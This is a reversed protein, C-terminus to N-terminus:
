NITTFTLFFDRRAQENYVYQDIFRKEFNNALDDKKITTYEEFKSRSVSIQNTSGDFPVVITVAKCEPVYKFVKGVGEVLLKEKVSYDSFYVDYDEQTLKTLENFAKVEEINKAYTISIEDSNSSETVKVIFPSGDLKSVLGLENDSDTNASETIETNKPTQEDKNGIYTGFGWMAVLLGAVTLLIAKTSKKM